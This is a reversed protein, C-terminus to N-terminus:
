RPSLTDGCLCPFFHGQGFVNYWGMRPHWGNNGIRGYRWGIDTPDTHVVQHVESITRLWGEEFQVTREWYNKEANWQYPIDEM